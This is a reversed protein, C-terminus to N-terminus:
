RPSHNRMQVNFNKIAGSDRPNDSESLTFYTRGVASRLFKRLGGFNTQVYQLATNQKSSVSSASPLKRGSTVVVSFQEPQQLTEEDDSGGKGGGNLHPFSPISSPPASAPLLSSPDVADLIPDNAYTPISFRSLERGINRSDIEGTSRKICSSIINVVFRELQQQTAKEENESESSSSSSTHAIPTEDLHETVELEGGGEEGLHGDYRQGSTEWSANGQEWANLLRDILKKKTGTSPM